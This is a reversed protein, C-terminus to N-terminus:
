FPGVDHMVIIVNSGRVNNEVGENKFLATNFYLNVSTMRSQLTLFAKLTFSAM